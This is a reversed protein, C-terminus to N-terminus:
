DEKLEEALLVLSADALDMPLDEYKKMLEILRNAHHIEITFVEFAGQKYSQIFSTQANTGLRTQLLHCTETMVAWTVILSEKVQTLAEVAQLHFRDKRNAIALWFGTDAIIM